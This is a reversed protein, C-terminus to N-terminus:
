RRKVGWGIPRLRNGPHQEDPGWIAQYTDLSLGRRQLTVFLAILFGWWLAVPLWMWRPANAHWLGTFITACAVLLVAYGTTKHIHEFLRRRRTMQYHDGALSGDPAPDTPGGKSGRLWGAAVLLLCAFVVGYGLIWHYGSEPMNSSEMLVLGLGIMMLVTGFHQLFLHWRWWMRNDLHRPWDQHPTVKFFRAMLVGVPILFSWAVVMLRGHWALLMGVEHARTADIPALLWDM